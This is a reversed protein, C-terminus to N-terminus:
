TKGALVCGHWMQEGSAIRSYNERSLHKEASPLQGVLSQMLALTDRELAEAIKRIDSTGLSKAIERARSVQFDCTIRWGSTAIYTDPAIEFIKQEADSSVGSFDAEMFRSDTGLVLTNADKLVVITSM